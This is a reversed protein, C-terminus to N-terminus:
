TKLNLILHLQKGEFRCSAKSGECYLQGTIRSLEDLASSMRKAELNLKLIPVDGQDSQVVAYRAMWRDFQSAFLGTPLLASCSALFAVGVFQRRGFMQGSSVPM